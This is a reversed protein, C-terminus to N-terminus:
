WIRLRSRASRKSGAADCHRNMFLSGWAINWRRACPYGLAFLLGAGDGFGLRWAEGDGYGYSRWVVVGMKVGGHLRALEDGVEEGREGEFGVLGGVGQGAGGGGLAVDEEGQVDEEGVFQQRGEVQEVAAQDGPKM